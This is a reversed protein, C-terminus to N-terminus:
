IYLKSIDFMDDSKKSNVKSFATSSMRDSL